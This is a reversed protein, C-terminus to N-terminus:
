ENIDEIDPRSSEYAKKFAIALEYKAAIKVGLRDGRSIYSCFYGHVHNYSSHPCRECRDASVADCNKHMIINDNIILMEQTIKKYTKLLDSMLIRWLPSVLMM